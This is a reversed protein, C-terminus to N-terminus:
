LFRLFAKMGPTSERGMDSIDFVVWNQLAVAYSPLELYSFPTPIIKSVLLRALKRTRHTYKGAQRYLIIRHRISNDSTVPLQLGFLSASCSVRNTWFSCVVGNRSYAKLPESLFFVPSTKPLLLEFHKYDM